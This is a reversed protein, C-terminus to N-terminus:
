MNYLTYPLLIFNLTQSSGIRIKQFLVIKYLIIKVQNKSLIIMGYFILVVSLFVIFWWFIMM